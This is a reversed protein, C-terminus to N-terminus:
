SERHRFTHFLRGSIVFDSGGDGLKSGLPLSLKVRIGSKSSFRSVKEIVSALLKVPKPLTECEDQLRHFVAPSANLLMMFDSRKLLRYKDLTSM